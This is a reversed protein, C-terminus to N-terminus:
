TMIPAPRPGEWTQPGPKIGRGTPCLYWSRAWFCPPPHSFPWSHLGPPLLSIPFQSVTGQLGCHAFVALGAVLLVQVTGLDPNGVGPVSVLGQRHWHACENILPGELGGAEHGGSSAHVRGHHTRTSTLAAAMHWCTCGQLFYDFLEKLSAECLTEMAISLSVAISVKTPEGGEKVAM